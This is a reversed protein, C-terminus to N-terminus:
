GPTSAAQKLRIAASVRTGRGNAGPAIELRGGFQALRERMGVIGHSSPKQLTGPAIGIGDDEVCVTMEEEAVTLTVLVSSASAHKVINTLSEQTVRFLALGAATDIAPLNAPIHARSEIGSRRTWDEVQHQLAVALGMSELMLPRLSEVIARQSSVLNRVLEAAEGHESVLGPNDSQLQRGMDALKLALLTLISGMDDHLEGALRAREEESSRILEQSLRALQATREAIVAQMAQANQRARLRLELQDVVIAAMSQLTQQEEDTVKRPEKDIVCLTGLNFGDATHLPAAAYFRLGFEGAVLSNTLALPDIKADAIVTPADRLVASACLGGERGVQDIAVGFHSKFWIRDDDVISIIAIPVAFIRAALEAVCDFAGDPPTDLIEYRKVAALRGAEDSSRSLVEAKTEAM